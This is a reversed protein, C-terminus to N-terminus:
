FGFIKPLFKILSGIGSQGGLEGFGQGLGGLLSELFGPPQKVLQNDYPRKDLLDSSMSHLDKIANRQLDQRRSQLEQAFNSAAQNMTNQFGSSNRGGIAGRGGGGGSFRSAINGQLGAFQRLAPAEMEDFLEEDGRALRGTYSDPSVNSFVQQFLQMQEPTYNQTRAQNYGEPVINGGAYGGRTRGQNQGTPGRNGYVSSM